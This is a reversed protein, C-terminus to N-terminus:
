STQNIEKRCVSYKAIHNRVESGAFVTFGNETVVGEAHIGRADIHFREGPLAM